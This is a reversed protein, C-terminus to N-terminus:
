GLTISAKSQEFARQAAATRRFEAELALVKVHELTRQMAATGSFAAGIAAASVLQKRMAEARRADMLMMASVGVMPVRKRTRIPVVDARPPNVVKTARALFSALADDSGTARIAQLAKTAAWEAESQPIDYLPDDQM